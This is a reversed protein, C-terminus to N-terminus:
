RKLAIFADLMSRAISMRPPLQPMTHVDFWRVDELEGDCPRAEGRVYRATFGVMLQHPFPWPQSGAYTVEDVEVGTEELVERRACAELSEGAEVFGAVLGYRGAPWHPQRTLLARNGDHVLVIACPSVRPYVEHGCRTCRMARRTTDPHRETSAGCTGCFCTTASWHALQTGYAAAALEHAALVGFLARLSLTRHAEPPTTGSALTGVFVPHGDLVGLAHVHAPALAQAVANDVLRVEREGMARVVVEGDCLLVWRAHDPIPSPVGSCAAVFGEPVPWTVHIV